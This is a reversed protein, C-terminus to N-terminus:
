WRKGGLQGNLWLQGVLINENWNEFDAETKKIIITQNNEDKEFVIVDELDFANLLLPSHTAIICQSNDVSKIASAITHTMDPHLGKEPEDVCVLNGREPNFFISLLLLFQLTGDSIHEISVTKALVKERLVLISKSSFHNFLINKFWPNIKSITEDIKEYELPHNIQLKQLLPTLNDGDPLLRNEIGATKAERIPSKQSTNFCSYISLSQIAQRLTFHPLNQIPDLIQGVILESTILYSEDQIYELKIKGNQRSSIKGKGNKFDLFIYPNRGKEQSEVFFKESLYYNTEGSPFITLEYIPNREFYYAAKNDSIENIVNKDFEYTIKIFDKQSKSFNAVEGFGGWEKIFQKEFGGGAIGEYLLQIARIFNSKGSGNIGVLINVGPNLEITTPEGFSFFNELTIKALM